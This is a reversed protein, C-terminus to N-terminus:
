FISCNTSIILWVYKFKHDKNLFNDIFFNLALSSTLFGLAIADSQILFVMQYALQPLAIFLTSFIISYIFNLKFINAMIISSLSM